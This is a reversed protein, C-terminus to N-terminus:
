QKVEQSTAKNKLLIFWYTMGVLLIGGIMNGITVPLLNTTFFNAWTLDNFQTIDAGTAQWFEAPTNNKILIAMPILFINAICHEFGAAVFMCVPLMIVIVKDIISQASYSMWIALCVLVNCMIGLTIAQAFDYQLKANAVTMYNLGVAGNDQLYQKTLMMLCVLLLAGMLNGLYVVLWSKLMRRMTIKNSAKAIIALLSGTFLEGGCVIVLILGLSFALGGILRAMGYPMNQAGTTVVIYFIFAIGIFFGATIALYFTTSLMRNTRAQGVQMAKQAMTLPSIDTQSSISM